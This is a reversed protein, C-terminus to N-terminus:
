YKSKLSLKQEDTLNNFTTFGPIGAMDDILLDQGVYTLEIQMSTPADDITVSLNGTSLTSMGLPVEATMQYGYSPYKAPAVLDPTVGVEFSATTLETSGQLYVETDISRAESQSSSQNGFRVAPWNILILDDTNIERTVQISYSSLEVLLDIMAKQINKLQRTDDIVVGTAAQYISKVLVLAENRTFDYEPINNSVLWESMVVGFQVEVTEYLRNVMNEVLGREYYDEISSILFWHWYAEDTIAYAHAKFASVSFCPTIIPQRRVIENAYFSLDTEKTPVVSLLDNATPRPNIRQRLNLYAPLVDIDFGDAKLSVYQMYVFANYASMTRVEGTKPDKFTVMVEYLGHTAMYCWQRIAVMEFPEPVADTYDVMSSDLAKTGVVSSNSLEARQEIKWRHQELYDANGEVLLVEKDILSDFTQFSTDMVNQEVNIMKRRVKVDAHYNEKYSDLQRISYKGIPIGRSTLLNEILKAFQEVKGSNRLIYRINRYFWLAQKLTMYPLYRDLGGHSALYMRVHFSHAESTKCRRQRLNILEPYVYLKLQTFFDTVYYADSMAFQANFWRHMVNKIYIELDRILTVENSEVLNPQFGIITGNEAAIATAMDVPSLIGNILMEQKPYRYLLSEYLRTGFQHAEATATHIKLNDVTFDIEELTDISVVSMITDTPHYEGSLNMYYKWSTPDYKNVAGTGYSAVVGENILEAAEALKVVVTKAFTANQELYQSLYGNQISGM